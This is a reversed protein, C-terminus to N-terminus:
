LLYSKHLLLASLTNFVKLAEIYLNLNKEWRDNYKLNLNSYLRRARKNLEFILCVRLYILIRM